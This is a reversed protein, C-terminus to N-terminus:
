LVPSAVYSRCESDVESLGFAAPRSKVTLEFCDRTSISTFAEAVDDNRSGDRAIIRIPGISMEDVDHWLHVSHNPTRCTVRHADVAAIRALCERHIGNTRGSDDDQGANVCSAQLIPRARV